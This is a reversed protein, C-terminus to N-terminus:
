KRMGASPVTPGSPLPLPVRSATATVAPPMGTPVGTPGVHPVTSPDTPGTPVEPEPPAPAKSRCCCLWCALMSLATAGTGIACGQAGEPHGQVFEVCWNFADKLIAGLKEFFPGVHNTWVEVIFSGTETCCTGCGEWCSSAYTPVESCCEGIGEWASVFFQGTADCCGEM